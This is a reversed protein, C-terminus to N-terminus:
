EDDTYYDSYDDDYSDNDSDDEDFTISNDNVMPVSQTYYHYSFYDLDYTFNFYNYLGYPIINSSLKPSLPSPNLMKMIRDLDKQETLRFIIEGDEDYYEYFDVINNKKFNCYIHKNGNPFYSIFEGDLKNMNMEFEMIINNTELSTVYIMGHYVYKLTKKNFIRLGEISYKNNLLSKFVGYIDRRKNILDIDIFRSIEDNNVDFNVSDIVNNNYITQHHGIPVDNNFYKRQIYNKSHVTFISEGIRKGHHYTENLISEDILSITTNTNHLKNNVYYKKSIIKQWKKYENGFIYKMESNLQSYHKSFGNKIGNRYSTKEILRGCIHDDGYHKSIGHLVNNKYYSKELLLKTYPNFRLYQGHLFGNKYHKKEKLRFQPNKFDNNFDYIMYTGHLENDKLKCIHINHINTPINKINPFDYYLKNNQFKNIYIYKDVINGEIDYYYSIYPFDVLNCKINGNQYYKKVSYISGNKNFFQEEKIVYDPYENTLPYYFTEKGCKVFVNDFTNQKMFYVIRLSNSLSSDSSYYEKVMCTLKNIYISKKKIEGNPYYLTEFKTSKIKLFEDVYYCGYLILTKVNKNNKFSYKYQYIYKLIDNNKYLYIINKVLLNKNNDNLTEYVEEKMIKGDQYHTKRSIELENKTYSVNKYEISDNFFVKQNDKWFYYSINKRKIVDNRMDIYEFEERLLFPFNPQIDIKYAFNPMLTESIRIRLIYYLNNQQICDTKVYDYTRYKTVCGNKYAYYYFNIPYNDIIEIGNKKGNESYFLETRIYNNENKVSSFYNKIYKGIRQHNDYHCDVLLNGDDYFSQFHGHFLGDYYTCELILIGRDNFSQYLGHLKNNFYTCKVKLLGNEHYSEYFGHHINRKVEKRVSINGNSYYDIYLGDFVIRPQKIHIENFKLNKNQYYNTYIDTHYRIHPLLNPDVFNTDEYDRNSNLYEEFNEKFYIQDQISFSPIFGKFIPTGNMFYKEVDGEVRGNIYSKKEIFIGNGIVNASKTFDKIKFSLSCRCMPCDTSFNIHKNLILDKESNDNNTDSKYIWTEFCDKCFTHLVSNSCPKLIDCDSVEAYCILCECTTSVSM